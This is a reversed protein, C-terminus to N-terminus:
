AALAYNAAQNKSTTTQKSQEQIVVEFVEIETHIAESIIVEHAPVKVVEIIQIQLAKELKTITDLTFNEEGKLITYVRQPAVQLWDALDKQTIQKERMVGLVKLAIKLSKRLWEKNERRWATKEHITSKKTKSVLKLFNKLNESQM